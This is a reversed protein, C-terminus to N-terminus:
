RICIKVITQYIYHILYQIRIIEETNRDKRDSFTYKVELTHIKKRENGIVQPLEYM